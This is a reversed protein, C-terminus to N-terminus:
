VMMLPVSEKHFGKIVFLKYSQSFSYSAQSNPILTALKAIAVGDDEM